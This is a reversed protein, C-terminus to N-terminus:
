STAPPLKPEIIKAYQNALQCDQSSGNGSVDIDVRSAGTIGIAVACTDGGTQQLQRGLHAGIPDDTVTYGDTNVDKIGQTM